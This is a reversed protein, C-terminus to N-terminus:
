VPSPGRNTAIVKDIFLRATQGDIGKVFLRKRRASQGGVLSVDRASIGLLEALAKMVAKNARGAVPAATVAIKLADGHRGVVRPQSSGAQVHVNIYVGGEAATIM